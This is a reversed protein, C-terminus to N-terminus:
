GPEVPGGEPQDIARVAQAAVNVANKGQGHEGVAGDPDAGFLFAQEAVAMARELQEGPVLSQRVVAYERQM